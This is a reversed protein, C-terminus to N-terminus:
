VPWVGPGTGLAGRAVGCHLPLSLADARVTACLAPRIQRAIASRNSLARRRWDPTLMAADSASGNLVQWARVAAALTANASFHALIDDRLANMAVIDTKTPARAGHRLVMALQRPTCQAVPDIRGIPIAAPTYLAKTSMFDNLSPQCRTLHALLLLAAVVIM